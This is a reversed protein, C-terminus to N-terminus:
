RATLSAPEPSDTTSTGGLSEARTLTSELPFARLFSRTSATAVASAAERLSRKAATSGSAADSASRRSESLRSSRTASRVRASLRRWASRRSRRGPPTALVSEASLAARMRREMRGLPAEARRRRRSAESTSRSTLVSSLFIASRPPRMSASTSAEPLVRVSIKPMPGMRAALIMPVTPSTLRKGVGLRV